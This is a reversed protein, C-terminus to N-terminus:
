HRGWNIASLTCLSIEGEPDDFNAPKTSNIECCLNSQKSPAVDEVFAGHTNASDVNM